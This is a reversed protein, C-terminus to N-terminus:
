RFCLFLFDSFNEDGAVILVHLRQMAIGLAQKASEASQQLLVQDSNRHVPLAWDRHHATRRVLASGHLYVLLIEQGVESKDPSMDTIETKAFFVALWQGYVIVREIKFAHRRIFRVPTLANGSLHQEIQDFRFRVFGEGQIDDVAVPPCLTNIFPDTEAFHM